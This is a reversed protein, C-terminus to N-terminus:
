NIPFNALCFDIYVRAIRSLQRRSPYVLQLDLLPMPLEPLIEVLQGRHLKKSCFFPPLEAIYLDSMVQDLMLNYDNARLVPQIKIKEDGLQWSVSQSKKAWAACPLRLLDSAKKPKFHNKIFTPTAVVKHQYSCIKRAVASENGVDGVRLAVDIGDEILDVKKETVYLDVVINPYLQQFKNIMRHLPSFNPPASLRLLGKLETEREDLALLGADMEELGRSVFEYLTTGSETLRLQRTSRELLRVNLSKELESVRRSVTSVPIDLYSAAASFSGKSVVYAFIKASNLNM